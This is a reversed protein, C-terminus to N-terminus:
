RLTRRKNLCMHLWNGRPKSFISSPFQSWLALKTMIKQRLDRAPPQLLANDCHICHEEQSYTGYPNGAMDMLASALANTHANSVGVFSTSAVECNPFLEVLRREDFSNVHGWPPNKGGCSYCTTRGVRIDQRYPVGILIQSKSVREIERCVTTLITPPIHELVEACFVFDFSDDVFALKSADGQVCQVKPHVINPKVLDLAVVDDFREAFLLSFHGDRAGVDLAVVGTKPTLRLLDQTRLQEATSNRYETLNM